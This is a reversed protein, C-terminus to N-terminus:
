INVPVINKKLKLPFRCKQKFILVHISKKKNNIDINRSMYQYVPMKKKKYNMHM